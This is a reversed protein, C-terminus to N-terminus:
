EYEFPQGNCALHGDYNYKEMRGRSGWLSESIFHTIYVVALLLFILPFYQKQYPSDKANKLYFTQSIIAKFIVEDSFLMPIQLVPIQLGAKWGRSCCHFQCSLRELETTVPSLTYLCSSIQKRPGHKCHQCNTFSYESKNPSYNSISTMLSFVIFISCCNQKNTKTVISHVKRTIFFTCKM